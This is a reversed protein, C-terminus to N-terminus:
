IDSNNEDKTVQEKAKQLREDTGHRTRKPQLLSIEQSQCEIVERMKFKQWFRTKHNMWTRFSVRLTEDKKTEEFRYVYGGFRMKAIDGDNIPVVIPYQREYRMNGKMQAVTEFLVTEISDIILLGHRDGQNQFILDFQYHWRKREHLSSHDADVDYRERTLFEIKPGIVTIERKFRNASLVIAAVSLVFAAAQYFSSLGM